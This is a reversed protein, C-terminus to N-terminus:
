VTESYDMAGKQCLRDCGVNSKLRVVRFLIAAALVAYAGYPACHKVCRAKLKKVRVSVRGYFGKCNIDSVNATMQVTRVPYQNKYEM